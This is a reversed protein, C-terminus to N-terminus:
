LGASFGVLFELSFQLDEAFAYFVMDFLFLGGDKGDSAFKKALAIQVLQAFFPGFRPLAEICRIRALRRLRRLPLSASDKLM